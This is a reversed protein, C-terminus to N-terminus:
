QLFLTYEVPIVPLHHYAKESISFKPHRQINIFHFTSLRNNGSKWIDGQVASKHAAKLVSCDCLTFTFIIDSQIEGM